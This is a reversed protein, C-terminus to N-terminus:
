LSGHDKWEWHEERESKKVELRCSCKFIPSGPKAMFDGEQGGIVFIRDDVVVCAINIYQDPGNVRTSTPIPRNGMFRGDTVMGLHSHAMEKPMDFRGGWKNDVFNYVDVHSRVLNINGYGSFVYLLNMIQIAAGDLRPVPAAAMKEWQLQPADLDQFTASLKREEAKDEEKQKTDKENSEPPLQGIITTFSSPLYTGAPSFRHSSAWLFDAVLGVALLALCSVLVLRGCNQKGAQRAMERQRDRIQCRGNKTILFQKQSPLYPKRNSPDGAEWTPYKSVLNDDALIFESVSLVGKEKFDSVTRPGTMREVAGKFAGHIKQSLVM